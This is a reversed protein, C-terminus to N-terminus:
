SVTINSFSYVCQDISCFLSGLFPSVNIYDVFRKGLLLTLGHVLSTIVFPATFVECRCALFLSDLCM